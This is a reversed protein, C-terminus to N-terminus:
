FSKKNLINWLDIIKLDSRWSKSDLMEYEKHRTAIIITDVKKVSNEIDEVKVVKKDIGVPLKTYENKDLYPDHVYVEYNNKILDKIIEISHSYRFDDINEKFSLGALLIKEGKVEEVVKQNLWDNARRGYYWISNFGRKEAINEFANELLYPDKGLCYGSVPGPRPIQNRKYGQNACKIAEAVDINNEEALFALENAFAFQTNRWSNDTLKIFEATRPNSVRVIEGGIKDFFSQVKEFGQDSCAGVIKPLSREEEIAKGEMIREPVFAFFFDKGESLGAKNEILEVIDESTGIPLTVRLIITKDKIGANVLQGIISYLVTLKPEEPYKAFGTGVALIIYEAQRIDDTVDEDQTKPHFTKGLNKKLLNQMGPENFATKGKKLESVLKKNVDIGTVNIGSDACVLSIPLGIRGLGFVVAKM